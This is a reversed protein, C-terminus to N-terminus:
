SSYRCNNFNYLISYSSRNTNLSQNICSIMERIKSKGKCPTHQHNRMIVWPTAGSARPQYCTPGEPRLTITSLQSNLTSLQPYLTSLINFTSLSRGLLAVVCLGPCTVSPFPVRPLFSHHVFARFPCFCMPLLFGM